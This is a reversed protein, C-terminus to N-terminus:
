RQRPKRQTMKLIDRISPPDPPMMHFPVEYWDPKGTKPDILEIELRGPVQNVSMPNLPDSPVACMIAPSGSLHLPSVLKIRINMPLFKAKEPQPEPTSPADM